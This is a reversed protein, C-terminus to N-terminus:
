ANGQFEQGRCAIEPATYARPDATERRCRGGIIPRQFQRRIKPHGTDVTIRGDVSFFVIQARVEAVDDVLGLEAAGKDERGVAAL